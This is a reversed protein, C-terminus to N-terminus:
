IAAERPREDITALYDQWDIASVMPFLFEEGPEAVRAVSPDSSPIVRWEPEDESPSDRKSLRRGGFIM